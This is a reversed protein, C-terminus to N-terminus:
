FEPREEAANAVGEDDVPGAMDVVGAAEARLVDVDDIDRWGDQLGGVRVEVVCEPSHLLKGYGSMGEQRGDSGRVGRGRAGRLVKQQKAVSGDGGAVPSGNGHVLGTSRKGVVFPPEEIEGVVGRFGVVEGLLVGYFEFFHLLEPLLLRLLVAAEREGLRGEAAAVGKGVRKVILVSDFKSCGFVVSTM